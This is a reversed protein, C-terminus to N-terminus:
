PPNCSMGPTVAAQRQCRAYDERAATMRQEQQQRDQSAQRQRMAQLDAAEEADRQQSTRMMCNAFADTGAKFGYGSCTQQDMARQEAPTVCSCLMAAIAGMAALCWIRM